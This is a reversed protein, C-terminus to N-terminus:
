PRVMAARRKALENRLRLLCADAYELLPNADCHDRRAGKIDRVLDIIGYRRLQVDTYKVPAVYHAIRKRSM